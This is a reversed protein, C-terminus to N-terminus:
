ATGHFQRGRMTLPRFRRIFRQEPCCIGCLARL